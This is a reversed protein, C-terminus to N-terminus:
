DKYLVYASFIAKQVYCNSNQNEVNDGKLLFLSWLLVRLMVFITNLSTWGELDM